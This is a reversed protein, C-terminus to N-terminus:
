RLSNILLYATKLTEFADNANVISNLQNKSARFFQNHEEIFSENREEAVDIIKFPSVEHKYVIIQSNMTSYLIKGKDGILMISRQSPYQIYDMYLTIVAGTEFQLVCGVINPDAKKEVEGLKAHIGLTRSVSGLFWRLYDIEHTYTLILSWPQNLYCDTKANILTEYAGLSVQGGVVNGIIKKDLLSKITGYAKTYRLAYGVAFVKNSKTAIDIIKRASSLNDALPKECFVHAGSELAAIAIVAHLGEHTCVFVFEPKEELAKRYDKFQRDVKTKKCTNVLSSEIPDCISLCVDKRKGLLRAHRQGISGCGIVLVKKKRAYV